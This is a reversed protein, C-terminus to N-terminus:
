RFDYVKHVKDVGQEQGVAHCSACQEVGTAAEITEAGFIAGNNKMHTAWEDGAVPSDPKVLGLPSTLHCSACVVLTPSFFKPQKNDATTAVLSPRENQQNPLNYQGKTHCSECNNLKGPFTADGSRHSGFAHFSHVHYKLDGPVGAYFSTRTANHCSTCQAFDKSAHASGANGETHVALDKHCGNCSALDAGAKLVYSGDVGGEVRFYAKVPNIAVYSLASATSSCPLLDGAAFAGNRDAKRAVCVQLEAVTAALTGSVENGVEKRCLFSGGGQSDCKTFDIKNGAVFTQPNTYGLEFGNGQDWNVLVYPAKALDGYKIYKLVGDMTEVPTGNATVTLEVEINPAAYRVDDFKFVLKDRGAAENALYGMHVSSPSKTNGPTEAHCQTCLTGSSIKGNIHSVYGTTTTSDAHCAGCPKEQAHQWNNADPTTPTVGKHCTDCNRPDQPFHSVLKTATADLNGHLKHVLTTLDGRGSGPVSENHCTVCLKPDARNSHHIPQKMHCSDCSQQELIDRTLLPPTGAPVWDLVYDTVPIDNSGGFYIGLRHTAAEDWRILGNNDQSDSPYPDRVTTANFSFTYRYQGNGLAELKGGNEGTPRNNRTSYIFSKWIVPDERTADRGPIVKALTFSPLTTGLDYGKGQKDTVKFQVSLQGSEGLQPTSASIVLSDPTGPPPPPPDTKDNGDGGGGCSSLTFVMAAAVLVKWYKM